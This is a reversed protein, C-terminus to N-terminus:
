VIMVSHAFCCNIQEIKKKRQQHSGFPVNVAGIGKEAISRQAHCHCKIKAITPKVAFQSM